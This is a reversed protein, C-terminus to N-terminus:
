PSFRFGEFFPAERAAGGPGHEPGIVSAQVVWTGRAFVATDMFVAEGSPGTVRLQWRGAGAQPTAGLPAPWEGVAAPTSGAKGESAGRLALLALGVTAPDHLDALAVAFTRGDAECSQLQMAVPQGALEIQRTQGVPRCPFMAQLGAGELRTDRWDLAPSCGVLAGGLVWVGACCASGRSVVHLSPSMRQARM